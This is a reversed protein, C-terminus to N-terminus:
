LVCPTPRQVGACVDLIRFGLLQDTPSLTFRHTHNESHKNVRFTRHTARFTPEKVTYHIRTCQESFEFMLMKGGWQTVRITDLGSNVRTWRVQAVRDLATRLQNAGSPALTPQNLM